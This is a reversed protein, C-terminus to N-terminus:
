ATKNLPTLHRAHQAQPNYNRNYNDYNYNAQPSQTNNKMHKNDSMSEAQTILVLFEEITKICIHILSLYYLIYM